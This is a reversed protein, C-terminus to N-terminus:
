RCRFFLTLQGLLDAAADSTFRTDEGYAQPSLNTCATCEEVARDSNLAYVRPRSWTSCTCGKVIRNLLFALYVELATGPYKAYRCRRDGDCRRFTLPQKEVLLEGESLDESM